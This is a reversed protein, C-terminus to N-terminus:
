VERMKRERELQERMRDEFSIKEDRDIEFLFECDEGNVKEKYAHFPGHEGKYKCHRKDSTHRCGDVDGCFTNEKGDARISCHDKGDCIYFVYKTM